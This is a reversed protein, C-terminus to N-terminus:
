GPRTGSEIPREVLLRLGRPSGAGAARGGGTAQRPLGGTTAGVGGGRQRASHHGDSDRAPASPSSRTAPCHRHAQPGSAAAALALRGSIPEPRTAHWVARQSVGHPASPSRSADSRPCTTSDLVLSLSGPPLGTLTRHLLLASAEECVMPEGAAGAPHCGGCWRPASSQPRVTRARRCLRSPGAGADVVALALKALRRRVQPALSPLSRSDQEELVGYVRRTPSAM